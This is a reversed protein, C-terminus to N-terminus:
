QKILQVNLNLRVEDSVVVSGAETLASWKLGFEKRNIKGNIEFGAKTQGYPDVATGNYIVDLEVSKTVDRLTLNGILTYSDESNKTFSTSEFSMKPYSAANFFDDSKLHEDRQENNTSISDINASFNIKADSFDDNTTQLSGEFENFYGTVNSMMMHRVKFLIESHSTDIAWATQTQTSMKKSFKLNVHIFM